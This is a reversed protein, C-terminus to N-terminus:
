SASGLLDNRTVAAEIMRVLTSLIDSLPANAAIMEEVEQEGVQLALEDTVGGVGLKERMEDPMVLQETKAESKSLDSMGTLDTECQSPRCQVGKLPSHYITFLCVAKLTKLGFGSETSKTGGSVANGHTGINVVAM